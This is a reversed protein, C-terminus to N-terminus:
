PNRATRQKRRSGHLARASSPEPEFASAVRLSESSHDTLNPVTYHECQHGWFLMCQGPQLEFPRFDGQGPQSEAWLTNTGFTTTLPLWCNLENPQHHYDADRHRHVLLHGTGPLHCRFNPVAQYLLSNGVEVHRELAPVIVEHLFRLYTEQLKSGQRFADVQKFKKDFVNRRAAYARSATQATGRLFDVGEPTTHLSSLEGGQGLLEGVLQPFNYRAVDYELLIEQRLSAPLLQADGDDNGAAGTGVDVPEVPELM